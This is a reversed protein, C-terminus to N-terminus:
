SLLPTESTYGSPFKQHMFINWGIWTRLLLIILVITIYYAVLIRMKASLTNTPHQKYRPQFSFVLPSFTTIILKLHFQWLNNQNQHKTPRVVRKKKFNLFDFVNMVFTAYIGIKIIDLVKKKTKGNERINHFM